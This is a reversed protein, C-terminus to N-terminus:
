PSVTLGPAEPALQSSIAGVQSGQRAPSLEWRLGRGCKNEAQAASPTQLGSSDGVDGDLM